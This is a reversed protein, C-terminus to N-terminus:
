RWRGRGWNEEAERKVSPAAPNKIKLWYRSRGSRYTSTLSKSVIGECGLACAHEFILEGDHAFQANLVLGCRPKVILHELM